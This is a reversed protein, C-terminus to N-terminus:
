SKTSRGHGQAAPAEDGRPAKGGAAGRGRRGGPNAVVVTFEGLPRGDRAARARLEGLVESAKGRLFEEHVKTLERAVAVPPDGLTEAVDELADLIRHPSEYFVLTVGSSSLESLRRRRPGPRRPLFGEFIFSSTPLGSGCLALILASPGPVPSVRIGREVALSVLSWGPDSIAPTGADSVLAVEEGDELRRLLEAARSPGSHQHYSVLPTHLGLHSLLKRTQRTDEAAIVDAEGLLRVVRASVDELNGIPTAM